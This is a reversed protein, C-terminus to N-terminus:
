ESIQIESQGNGQNPDKLLAFCMKSMRMADDDGDDNIGGIPTAKKNLFRQYKEHSVPM